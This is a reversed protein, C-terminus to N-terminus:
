IMLHQVFSIYCVLAIFVGSTMYHLQNILPTFVSHNPETSNISNISVSKNFKGYFLFTVVAFVNDSQMMKMNGLVQMQVPFYFLPKGQHLVCWGCDSLCILWLMLGSVPSTLLM